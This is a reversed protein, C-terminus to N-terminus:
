ENHCFACRQVKMIGAKIPKNGAYERPLKQFLLLVPVNRFENRCVVFQTVAPQFIFQFFRTRDNVKEVMGACIEPGVVMLGRYERWLCFRIKLRSFAM